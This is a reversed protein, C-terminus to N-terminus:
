VNSGCFLLPFIYNFRHGFELLASAHPKNRECRCQCLEHWAGVKLINSAAAPGVAQHASHRGARAALGLSLELLSVPAATRACYGIRRWGWYSGCVGLPGLLCFSFLFLIRRGLPSSCDDFSFSHCHLDSVSIDCSLDWSPFLFTLPWSQPQLQIWLHYQVAVFSLPGGSSPPYMRPDYRLSVIQTKKLPSRVGTSWEFPARYTGLIRLIRM